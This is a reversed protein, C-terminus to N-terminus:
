TLRRKIANARDAWEDDTSCDGDDNKLIAISGEFVQEMEPDTGGDLHGEIRRILDRNDGIKSTM